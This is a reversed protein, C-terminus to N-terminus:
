EGALEMIDLREVLRESEIRCGEARWIRIMKEGGLLFEAPGSVGRFAETLRASIAGPDVYSLAVVDVTSEGGGPSRCLDPIGWIQYQGWSTYVPRGTYNRLQAAIQYDIAFVYDSGELPLARAERWGASEARIAAAASSQPLRVERWTAMATGLGALGAWAVLAVALVGVPRWAGWWRCIAEGALPLLLAVGAVLNRPSNAPSLAVPVLLALAPGLLLQRQPGRFRTVGPAALLIVPPTLYRLSHWANGVLTSPGVAGRAFHAAQWRWSVWGQAANWGLAPLFGALAIGLAAWARRDRTLDRRYWALILGAALAYLYAGYKTNLLAAM